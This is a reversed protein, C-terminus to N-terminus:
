GAEQLGRRPRIWAPNDAVSAPYANQLPSTARREPGLRVIQPRRGTAAVVERWAPLVTGHFFEATQRDVVFDEFLVLHGSLLRLFEAYYVSPRLEQTQMIERLNMVDPADTRLVERLKRHHYAVLSEGSYTLIRDLPMREAVAPDQLRQRRLIPRGTKDRGVVIPLTLLALKTSNNVTFRDTRHEIVLARFGHRRALRTFWLMEYNPTAVNRALVATPETIHRALAEPWNGEHPELMRDARPSVEELAVYIEEDLDSWASLLQRDGWLV